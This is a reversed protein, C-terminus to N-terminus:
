LIVRNLRKSVPLIQHYSFLILSYFTIIFFGVFKSMPIIIEITKAPVMIKEISFLRDRMCIKKPNITNKNGKVNILLKLDLNEIKM